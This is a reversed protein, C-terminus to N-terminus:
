FPTHLKILGSITDKYEKINKNLEEVCENDDKLFMRAKSLTQVMNDIEKQYKQLQGEKYKMQRIENLSREYRQKTKWMNTKSDYM